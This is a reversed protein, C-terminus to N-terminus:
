IQLVTFYKLFPFGNFENCRHAFGISRLLMATINQTDSNILRVHYISFRYHPQNMYHRFVQSIFYYNVKQRLIFGAAKLM